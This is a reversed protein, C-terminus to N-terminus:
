SYYCEGPLITEHHCRRQCRLNDYSDYKDNRLLGANQPLRFSLSVELVAQRRTGSMRTQVCHSGSGVELYYGPETLALEDLFVKSIPDDNQQDTHVVVERVVENGKLENLEGIARSVAFSKIFQPGTGVITIVKLILETQSVDVSALDEIRNAQAVVM